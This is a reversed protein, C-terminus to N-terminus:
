KATPFILWFYPQSVFKAHGGKKKGVRPLVLLRKIEAIKVQHRSLKRKIEATVQRLKPSM